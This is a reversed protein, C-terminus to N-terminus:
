TAVGGEDEAGPIYGDPYLQFEIFFDMSNVEKKRLANTFKYVNYQKRTNATCEFWDLKGCKASRIVVSICVTCYARWEVIQIDTCYLTFLM